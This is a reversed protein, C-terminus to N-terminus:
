KVERPPPLEPMLRPYPLIEGGYLPAPPPPDWPHRPRLFQWEPPLERPIPITERPAPMPPVLFVRVPPKRPPPPVAMAMLTVEREVLELTAPHTPVASKKVRGLGHDTGSLDAARLIFTGLASETGDWSELGRPEMYISVDIVIGSEGAAAAFDRAAKAGSGYGIVAFRATPRDASILQIESLFDDAHHPWGYYTKGFGIHHLFDRVGVLSGTDLPNFTDFLFIYVQAKSEEPVTDAPRPLADDPPKQTFHVCGALVPLVALLWAVPRRTM